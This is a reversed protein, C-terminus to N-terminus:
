ALLPQTVPEAIPSTLESEEMLLTDDPLVKQFILRAAIMWFFGFLLALLGIQPLTLKLYFSLIPLPPIFALILLTSGGLLLKKQLIENGVLTEEEM